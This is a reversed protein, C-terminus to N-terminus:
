WDDGINFKVGIGLKTPSPTGHNYAVYVFPTVFAQEVRKDAVVRVQFDQITLTGCCLVRIKTDTIHPM